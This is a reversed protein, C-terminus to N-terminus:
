DFDIGEFGLAYLTRSVRNNRPPFTEPRALGLLEGLINSKLHPLAWPAHSADWIRAAAEPEDGLEDGWIVVSLVDRVTHGGASRLRWLYTAFHISREEISRREDDDLGLLGNPLQRAHTRAAHCLFVVRGLQAEDLRMLAER